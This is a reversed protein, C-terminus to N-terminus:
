KQDVQVLRRIHDGGATIRGTLKTALPATDGAPSEGDDAVPGMQEEAIVPRGLHASVLELLAQSVLSSKGSGSVGTVATFCGLPFEADLGQLNNRTIGELRLWGRPERARSREPAVEGFLHRRTQSEKVEALGDPPGSYRVRGGRGGAE